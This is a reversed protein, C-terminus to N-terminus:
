VACAEPDIFEMIMSGVRIRDGNRLTVPQSVRRGNVYTGNISAVEQLIVTGDCEVRIVAHQSSVRPDLLFIDASHHRGLRNVGPQLPSIALVDGDLLHNLHM